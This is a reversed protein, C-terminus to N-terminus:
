EQLLDPRHERIWALVDERRWVNGMDLEAVPDPFGKSNAIVNVRQRSLGGMMRRIESIGVLEMDNVTPM